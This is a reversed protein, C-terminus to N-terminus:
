QAKIADRIRVYGEALENGLLKAAAGIEHSAEVATGGVVQAKDHFRQWVPELREWEDRAEAEALHIKLKLEDRETKLKQVLADVDQKMADLKSNSMDGGDFRASNPEYKFLTARSTGSSLAPGAPEHRFNVRM